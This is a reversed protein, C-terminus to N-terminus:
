QAAEVQREDNAAEERARAYAREQRDESLLPEIGYHLAASALAHTAVPGTFFCLLVLLVLKLLVLSFGAQLMFGILLLGAGLTDTVSAAHLRTYLDPMRMLGIAGIITFAAGALVLAWSLGNLLIDIM